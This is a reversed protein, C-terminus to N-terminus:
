YALGVSALVAQRTDEIARLAADIENVSAGQNVMVVAMMGRTEDLGSLSQQADEIQQLATYMGARQSTSASPSLEIALVTQLRIEELQKEQLPRYEPRPSTQHPKSVAGPTIATPQGCAAVIISIVLTASILIAVTSKKM